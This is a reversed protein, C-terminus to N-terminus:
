WRKYYWFDLNVAERWKMYEAHGDYFTVNCGDNHWPYIEGELKPIGTYYVGVARWHGYADAFLGVKSLKAVKDVRGNYYNYFHMDGNTTYTATYLDNPRGLGKPCKMFLKDKIYGNNYMVNNWDSPPNIYAANNDECYLRFGLFVQKQNNMCNISRAKERAQGLAPLLMSALIAIIAIVVLLEILTFKTKLLSKKM